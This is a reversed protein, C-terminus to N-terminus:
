LLILAVTERELHFYVYMDSYIEGHKELKKVGLVKQTIVVLLRSTRGSEIRGKM